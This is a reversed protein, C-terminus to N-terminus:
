RIIRKKLIHIFDVFGVKWGTLLNTNGIRVRYNIPVDKWKCKYYKCAEIKIEHSFPWSNSGLRLKPLINRKFVWMGSEPDKMNLGFLLLTELSLIKNGIKNRFSMAHRDMLKFRNTTLFDLNETEFINILDPIYEVPYTHDADATAIIDGEANSFGTKYAYGYGRRHEHVVDAGAKEALDDTGDTSGNNVVVIQVRYGMQELESRPVAQITKVIGNKENLAPIVISISKM